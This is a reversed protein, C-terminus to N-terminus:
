GMIANGVFGGFGQYLHYSGRLVSETALARSPSWGMQALRTLVFACVVVEEGIARSSPRSCCTPIRYWVDPFSTVVIEANLGLQRAVYVFGLGPIGILGAFGLGVGLERLGLRHLGIGLGRGAPSRLLLVVALFAPAVGSLISALQDLIDLYQYHVTNSGSKIPATAVHSFGVGKQIVIQARLFSLFATLGSLGYSVGLVAILELGYRPRVTVAQETDVGVQDTHRLM